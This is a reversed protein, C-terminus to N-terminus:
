RIENNDSGFAGGYVVGAVKDPRHSLVSLLLPAGFPTKPQTSNEWPLITCNTESETAAENAALREEIETWITIIKDEEKEKRIEDEDMANGNGNGNSNGLKYEELLESHEARALNAAIADKVVQLKTRKIALAEARKGCLQQLFHSMAEHAMKKQTLTNEATVYHARLSMYMTEIFERKSEAIALKKKKPPQTIYIIM